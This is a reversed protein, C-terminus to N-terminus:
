FCCTSVAYPDTVKAGAFLKTINVIAELDAIKENNQFICFVQSCYVNGKNMVWPFNFNLSYNVFLECLQEVLNDGILLIFYDIKEKVLYDNKLAFFIKLIRQIYPIGKECPYFSFVCQNNVEMSILESKDKKKFDIKEFDKEPVLKYLKFGLIKFIRKRQELPMEYLAQKVTEPITYGTAPTTIPAITM